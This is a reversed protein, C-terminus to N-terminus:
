TPASTIQKEFWHHAYPEFNFPPVEIYGASRYLSIAETLAKNTELRVTRAGHEAARDELETLLRRGVGFGRASKAVWMRKIEAPEQGRFKLAGCGIPDARLTAVLLLGAPPRLEELDAPISLAPDFGADFRRDLESFYAHLCRQAHPHAPDTPAVEVMAATLLREVEGMAAVLRARQSANLPALLSAALEDSRQDLVAREALGSPTLRAIRVRKDSEKPGVTVLGAAELSRLLRSLYGSDLELLARLYRVDRGEAGIEWLLRAEGLSRDGALFRDNLAGVRQTVIRNFGRVQSVMAQDM